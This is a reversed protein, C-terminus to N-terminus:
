EAPKEMGFKFEGMGGKGNKLMNVRNEKMKDFQEQTTANIREIEQAKWSELTMDQWKTLEEARKTEMETERAQIQAKQEETLTIGFRKQIQDAQDGNVNESAFASMMGFGSIILASFISFLAIQKKNM